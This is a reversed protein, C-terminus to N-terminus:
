KPPKAPLVKMQSAQALGRERLVACLLAVAIKGTERAILKTEESWNGPKVWQPVKM